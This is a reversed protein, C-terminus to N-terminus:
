KGRPFCFKGHLLFDIKSFIILLARISLEGMLESHRVTLLIAACYRNVLCFSFESEFLCFKPFALLWLTTLPRLFSKHNGFDQRCSLLDGLHM